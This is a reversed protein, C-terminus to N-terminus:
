MVVLIDIDVWLLLLLLLLILLTTVLSFEWEVISLFTEFIVLLKTLVESFIYTIIWMMFRLGIIITTSTWSRLIIMFGIRNGCMWIFYAFYIWLLIIAGANIITWLIDWFRLSFSKTNVQFLWFLHFISFLSWLSRFILTRLLKKGLRLIIYFWILGPCFTSDLLWCCCCVIFLIICVWLLCVVLM